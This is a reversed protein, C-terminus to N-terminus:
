LTYMDKLEKEIQGVYKKDIIKIRRKSENISFENDYQYVVGRTTTITVTSGNSLNVDDSETDPLVDYTTNDIIYSDSSIVGSSSDKKTITKIYHDITTQATQISGYKGIIYKSFENYPLVWDYFPDVINNTLLIIWYRSADGYYKEAIIEPTDTDKVDYEYYVLTNTKISDIIKARAMIDTVIIPNAPIKGTLDYYIKPLQNFYLM